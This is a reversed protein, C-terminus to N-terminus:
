CIRPNSDGDFERLRKLAGFETRLLVEPKGESTVEGIIAAHPNYKRLIGLVEEATDPSAGCVFRGESAFNVPLLGLIDGLTRVAEKFPIKDAWATIGLSYHDAIEHLASNLGGRTPDKAFKVLEKVAKMEPLVSACDSVIDIEYGFRRALLAAEHNGLEGSVIIRDGKELPLDLVKDAVGVASTNVVLKDLEGKGMVKTDGTVIPVGNKKATKAISTTVAELEGALFGEEMIFALSLGLPEAGMVAIDNITGNVSLTGIDGGPFFLPTVIHSDTTFCLYREGFKIFASDTRLGEWKGSQGFKERFGDILMGMSRGGAGHKLTVMDTEKGKKTM